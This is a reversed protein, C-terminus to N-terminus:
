NIKIKSTLNWRNQLSNPKKRVHEAQSVSAENKIDGTASVSMSQYAAGLPSVVANTVKVHFVFFYWFIFLFWDCKLLKPISNKVFLGRSLNTRVEATNPAPSSTTTSTSTSDNDTADVKEQDQADDKEEQSKDSDKDRKEEDTMQDDPDELSSRTSISLHVSADAQVLVAAAALTLYRLM